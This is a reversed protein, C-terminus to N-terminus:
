NRSELDIHESIYIYNISLKICASSSNKLNTILKHLDNEFNEEYSYWEIELEHLSYIFNSYVLFKFVSYSSLSVRRAEDDEWNIDFIWGGDKFKNVPYCNNEMWCIKLFKVQPDNFELLNYYERSTVIILFLVRILHKNPFINFLISNM